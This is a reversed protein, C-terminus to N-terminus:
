GRPAIPLFLSRIEFPPTVGNAYGLVEIENIAAVRSWYWRGTTATVTFRFQDITTPASLTILTGGGNALPEIRGVAITEVLNGDRFLELTGGDVYYDGFQAP